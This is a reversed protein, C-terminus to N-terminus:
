ESPKAEARMDMSGHPEWLAPVNPPEWGDQSTHGTICRYSPSQADPYHVVDDAVYDTQSQWIRPTDPKNPEVKRWLDPVLNPRWDSQTTHAAVCRWIYGEHAYIDGVEVVLGPRWERDAFAPAIRFLEDDSINGDAVSTRLLLGLADAQAQEKTARKFDSFPRSLERLRDTIEDGEAIEVDDPLILVTDENAADINLFLAELSFLGNEKSQTYVFPSAQVHMAKEDALLVVIM